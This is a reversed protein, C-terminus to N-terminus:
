LLFENKSMKLSKVRGFCSSASSSSAGSDRSQNDVWGRFPRSNMYELIFCPGFEQPVSPKKNWERATEHFLQFKATFLSLEWVPSALGRKPQVRLGHGVHPLLARRTRCGWSTPRSGKTSQSANFRRNRILLFPCSCLLGLSFSM